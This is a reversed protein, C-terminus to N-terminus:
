TTYSLNKLVSFTTETIHQLNLTISLLKWTNSIDLRIKKLEQSTIQM